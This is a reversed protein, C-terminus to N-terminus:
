AGDARWKQRRHPGGGRVGNRLLVAGRLLLM